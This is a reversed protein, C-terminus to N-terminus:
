VKEESSRNLMNSYFSSKPQQFNGILDDYRAKTQTDSLVQYAHQV